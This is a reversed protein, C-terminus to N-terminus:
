KVVSLRQTTTGEETRIAINYLGAALSSTSINFRQNGAQLTADSVVAVTHGVADQVTINVKTPNSLRFELTAAERAPNPFVSVSNEAIVNNVGVGGARINVDDIFMNNGGNATARFAIVSNAPVSSLSVSRQKWDPSGSAPSPLWYATQPAATALSSGQASWLTTWSTGCNTTYVVELKDNNAATKQCYAQWFDLAVAGSITPTPMLLYGVSGSPYTGVKYWPMYSSGNHALNTGNGNVWTYGLGAPEYATWGTPFNAAEFNASLPISVGATNVVTVKTSIVNNGGNIDNSGNPMAVSDVISRNGLSLTVAPISVSTTAGPALSGTWSVPTAGYAGNDARYYIKASTLTTTGTNKLTMTSAMSTSATACGLKSAPTAATAGADTAITIHGSKAAQYIAKDADNQIWAVLICESNTKDLINTVKGKVTYVQSQSATWSNLIQTGGANPVMERVVNHFDTEGNTGPPTAYVLHEIIAIRLKLNGGSPAFAAPATVTVNATVSDGTSNWTHTVTLNLPATAAAGANIDAQTLNAVHGPSSPAATGSGLNTGQLRGYPAFPVSYYTMRADTITKYANYIPGASPIPSQYKILMVKSANGSILTWLGPNAAACPGCNEGSFEEYLALTQATSVTASLAVASLALLLKKM